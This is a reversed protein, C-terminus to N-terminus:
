PPCGYAASTSGQLWDAGQCAVCWWDQCVCGLCSLEVESDTISLKRSAGALHIMPRCLGSTAAAM